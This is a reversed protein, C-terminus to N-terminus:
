VQTYGVLHWENAGMYKLYGGAYQAGSRLGDTSRILQGAGSASAFTLTGAGWQVWSLTFGATLGAPLSVTCSGAALFRKLKNKDGVVVAYATVTSAVDEITDDATLLKPYFDTLAIQGHVDAITVTGNATANDGLLKTSRLPTQAAFDTPFVAM